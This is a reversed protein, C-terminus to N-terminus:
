RFKKLSASFLHPIFCLAVFSQLALSSSLHAGGPPLAWLYATTPQTSRADFLLLQATVFICGVSGGALSPGAAQLHVTSLLLVACKPLRVKKLM